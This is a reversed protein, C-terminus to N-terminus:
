DEERCALKLDAIADAVSAFCNSRLYSHILSTQKLLKQKEAETKNNLDRYERKAFEYISFSLEEFRETVKLDNKDTEYYNGLIDVDYYSKLYEEKEVFAKRMKKFTEETFDTETIRNLAKELMEIYERTIENMDFKKFFNFIDLKNQFYDDIKNNDKIDDLDESLIIHRVDEIIKNELVKM